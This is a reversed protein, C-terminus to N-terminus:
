IPFTGYEFALRAAVQAQQTPTAKTDVIIIRAIDGNLFGAATSSNRGLTINDTANASSPANTLTNNKVAAGGNLILESRNAATANAPDSIGILSNFQLTDFYDNASTNSATAVGVVGRAILNSIVDQRSVTSRDDYFITYGVNATGGGNNNIFGMTVESNAVNVKSVIIVTGGTANHL